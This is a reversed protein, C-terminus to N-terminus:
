INIANGYAVGVAEHVGESLTPHAHITAEIEDHTAELTIALGSHALGNVGAGILPDSSRNEGGFQACCILRFPFTAAPAPAVQFQVTADAALAIEAGLTNARHTLHM